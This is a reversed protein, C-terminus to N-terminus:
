GDCVKLEKFEEVEVKVEENAGQASSREVKVRPVLGDGEVRMKPRPSGETPSQHLSYTRAITLRRTEEGVAFTFNGSRRPIKRPREEEQTEPQLTTHTMEEREAAEEEDAYSLPTPSRPSPRTTPAVEVGGTPVVNTPVTEEVPESKPPPSSDLVEVPEPDGRRRRPKRTIGETQLWEESRCKFVFEPGDEGLPEYDFTAGPEEYGDLGSTKKLSNFLNFM